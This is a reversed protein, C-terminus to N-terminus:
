AETDEGDGASGRAAVAAAFREDDLFPVAGYSGGLYRRERNEEQRPRFDSLPFLTTEGYADKEVFWVQDRKLVDQGGSRGLLSVDHTTLLLQAGRPNTAPNQFLGIVRATLSPHLSSDIEDVVLVGGEALATLVPAVHALLARTGESQHELGMRVPGTRGRHEIWVRRSASTRRMEQVLLEKRMPASAESSLLQPWADVPEDEVGADEIGLDAARLLDVVARASRPDEFLRLMEVRGGYRRPDGQRGDLLCLTHRFWEYVPLVSPQRSRAAVSLFLVNPETIRQVVDLERKPMTEGFTVEDEARQFLIRRRGRPYSFLWEDLVRRDDVSFGYTYRVGTLIVDVVYWSPEDAGEEALLFPSRALGGGPEAARHSYRVMSAMFRLADVVNSKGSANAGFLAAVPVAPWDTEGPRDADYVPTFTWQQEERISRHNAVRISLLM